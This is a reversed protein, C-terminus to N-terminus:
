EITNASTKPKAKPSPLSALLRNTRQNQPTTTSNKRATGTSIMIIAAHSNKAGGIGAHHRCTVGSTPTTM